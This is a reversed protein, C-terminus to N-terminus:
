RRGRFRNYERRKFGGKGTGGKFGKEKLLGEIATCFHSWKQGPVEKKDKTILYRSSAWQEMSWQRVSTAAQRCENFFWITPLRRKRGNEVVINNFPTGVKLSNLLREKIADRGVEGKTNYPKWYGGTGMGDRKLRYFHKNIIEISTKKTGEHDQNKVNALPDILSHSFKDDGSKEAIKRCLRELVFRDPSPSWEKYIFLEDERSIGAWVIAHPNSPHFDFSRGLRWSSITEPYIEYKRPDIVHVKLNMDKFIRGIAGKFFGHRRTLVVTGDPDPMNKYRKEIVDLDMTPNDDTSARFVVIDSDIDTHEIQKLPKGYAKEHAACFPKTRIHLNGREAIGDYEWAIGMAPTLTLIVDGDEEHVRQYSEEFFDFPSSEDCWVSLRMVGATDQAEQHYGAFEILLDGGEYLQDGFQINSNVDHIELAAQRTSIDEKKILAAPCWKKFEPYQPSATERAQGGGITGKKTPLKAAAFRIIRTQREKIKVKGGCYLCVNDKPRKVAKFPMFNPHYMFSDMYQGRRCFPTKSGDPLGQMIMPHKDHDSINECEFYLVNRFPVPHWGILRLVYLFAIASTKGSRNGTFMSVIGHPMRALLDFAWTRHFKLLVPLQSILEQPNLKAM